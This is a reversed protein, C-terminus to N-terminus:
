WKVILHDISQQKYVCECEYDKAVFMCHLVAGLDTDTPRIQIVLVRKTINANIEKEAEDIYREVIARRRMSAESIKSGNKLMEIMADELTVGKYGVRKLSEFLGHDMVSPSSVADKQLKQRQEVYQRENLENIADHLNTSKLGLNKMTMLDIARKQTESVKPQGDNQM